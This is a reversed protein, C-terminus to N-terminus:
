RSSCSLWTNPPPKWNQSHRTTRWDTWSSRSRFARSATKWSWQRGASSSMFDPATRSANWCLTGRRTRGPTTEQLHCLHCSHLFRECVRGPRLSEGRFADALHCRVVLPPQGKLWGADRQDRRFCHEPPVSEATGEDVLYLDLPGGADAATWADGRVVARRFSSWCKAVISAGQPFSALKHTLHLWHYPESVKLRGDSVKELRFHPDAKAEKAVDPCGLSKANDSGALAPDYAM